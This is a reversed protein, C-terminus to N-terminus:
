KKLQLRQLKEKQNQHCLALIFFAGQFFGLLM